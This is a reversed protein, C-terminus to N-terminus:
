AGYRHGSTTRPDDHVRGGSGDSRHHTADGHGLPRPTAKSCSPDLHASGSVKPPASGPELSSIKLEDLQQRLSDVTLRLDKVQADVQPRWREFDAKAATLEAVSDHVDHLRRNTESIGKSQEDLKTLILALQDEVKM